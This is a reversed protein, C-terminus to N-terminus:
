LQGLTTRQPSGTLCLWGVLWCTVNDDVPAIIRIVCLLHIIDPTSVAPIHVQSYGKGNGHRLIVIIGSCDIISDM